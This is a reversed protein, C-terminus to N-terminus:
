VLTLGAFACSKDEYVKVKESGDMNCKWLTGGLDSIYIQHCGQDVKLGIAEHFGRCLITHKILGSSLNVLLGQDDLKVQNLSNGFPLEGRDTWLLSHDADSFELDVPEPLDHLLCTIDNRNLPSQGAPIDINASLIRGQNSKSGGKQTWFIKGLKTSIAIGVCWKTQDARDDPNEWDGLQVLTELDTGDLNSRHIRLGERDAVYLKGHKQDILLQKPTHIMGAPIVVRVDHGDVTSSMVYGDNQTPLGMCTWYLRGTANDVDIGDPNGQKDFITRITKGDHSLELVRGSSVIDQVTKGELPQALGIDLLM